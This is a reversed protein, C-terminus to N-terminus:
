KIGLQKQLKRFESLNKIVGDFGETIHDRLSSISLNTYDEGKSLRASPCTLMFEKETMLSGYYFYAGDKTTQDHLWGESEIDERDLHKVRIWKNILSNLVDLLDPKGNGQLYNIAYPVPICNGEVNCEIAFGVHFEEITPTYYKEKNM